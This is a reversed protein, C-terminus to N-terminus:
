KYTKITIQNRDFISSIMGDNDTRYIKFKGSNCSNCIIQNPNVLGLFKELNGKKNTMKPLFLINAGIKEPYSKILESQVYENQLSEGFLFSKGEYMLKIIIPLPMTSDWIKFEGRPKIFNIKVGQLKFNEVDESIDKWKIKKENIVEWLKGDLKSGNTWLNKVNIKRLLSVAGNIHSIDTSSLILYDLKTIQKNLLFPTVVANEIFDSKSSRSYGGSILMTKGYPFNILWVNKNGSDLYNIELKGHNPKLFNPTSLSLVTFPLLLILAYAGKRNSKAMLLALGSLLFLFISYPSVKPITFYTIGVKEFITTIELLMSIVLTLIKLINLTLIESIMFTLLSLLGLPIAILEIVPVIILNAPISSVPLYGFSNVAFPLTIFTAATTTKISGLLKEGFTYFRIPYYKNVLLIGFVASFSLRFSLEFFSNPNLLLVLIAAFALSNMKNEEKALVISLLYVTVMIFARTASTSFGTLATYIFVPFITLGAALIPVKYKLLLYESRKLLWKIILFFFVAVGGVHLGSIAFIHAIGLASFREKLDSPLLSKEGITIASIIESEPFEINERIFSSFNLRLKNIKYLFRSSSKDRGLIVINKNSNIFASYHIGKRSYFGKLDFSGPNKFNTIPKLKINNLKVKDGYSLQEIHNKLYVIIKQGESQKGNIENVKLFIRSNNERREVNKILTGTLKTKTNVFTSLKEHNPSPTILIGLPFFLIFLLKPRISFASLFFLAILLSTSITPQFYDKFLIGLILLLLFLIIRYKIFLIM